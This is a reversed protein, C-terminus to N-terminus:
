VTVTCRIDVRAITKTSPHWSRIRRALKSIRDLLTTDLTLSHKGDRDVGAVYMRSRYGHPLQRAAASAWADRWLASWRRGRIRWTPALRARSWDITGHEDRLEHYDHAGEAIDWNACQERAEPRWDSARDLALYRPWRPRYRSRSM